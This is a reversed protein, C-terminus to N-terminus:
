PTRSRSSEGSSGPGTSSFSARTSGTQPGPLIMTVPIPPYRRCRGQGAISECDPCDCVEIEFLLEPGSLFDPIVIPWPLNTGIKRELGPPTWLTDRPPSSGTRNGRVIVSYRYLPRSDNNTGVGGVSRQTSQYPDDDNVKDLTLTFNRTFITDKKIVSPHFSRDDLSLYPARDVFFTLVKDKLAYRPSKPTIFGREISDVFAVPDVIREDVGRDGDEANLLAYARGAQQMGQYGSIHPEAVFAPDSFPYIQSRPFTSIRGSGPARIPGISDLLVPIRFHFGIPSGNAPGSTLVPTTGIGPLNPNGITIRLSYPSDADFGGGSLLVWSNLHVTDGETHVYIRHTATSGSGESYIEFFTKNPKRRAAMVNVSDASLLSGTLSRLWNQPPVTGGTGVQYYRWKLQGNPQGTPGKYRDEAYPFALTDPGAFWTDPTYNMYFRRTTEPSTRAAGAQDIARLTFIKLGPGLRNRDTTNYDTSTVSAPVTVFEVENGEGIKYKYATASNDVVRIESHWQVHVRSGMPVIDKPSTARSFTDCLAITTERQAPFAGVGDWAENPHFILGTARSGATPNPVGCEAEIVPIPPYLDLTNFIVRAPTPDPKGKNDVAYIYFAHQRNNTEELVNFIFFSDTKTTYHYDQPKPGPLPPIPLGAVSGVTEVVAWYFGSVSGDQDSGSWYLHYRFPISGPQPPVVNGNEDRITLTDQPAATIWTEPPLNSDVTPALPKRCGVGMWLALFVFVLGARFRM